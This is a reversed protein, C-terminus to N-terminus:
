CSAELGTDEGSAQKQCRKWLPPGGIFTACSIMSFASIIALSWGVTAFGAGERVFGGLLPGVMVGASFAINYFAYGLAIPKIGRDQYREEIAYTIEATVPGFTFAVGFGVGALLGCLMVKHSMTNESVFRLCVLFPTYLGFGLASLWRPGYRDCLWGVVPSICTPFVLPLFILGAGTSEWGFLEKVFIPLTSDFAALVVAEAVTGWLAALLRPSTFLGLTEKFSLPSSDKNELSEDDHSTNNSSKETAGELPSMKPKAVDDTAQTPSMDAQQLWKAAHKKEVVLVRFVIDIAILGFCMAWVEYYGGKAYVLGGLLPSSLTGLALAIGVWGMAWGLKETSVTDVVLALGVSWTLASTMGQLIRGLILMAVTRMFCLIISAAGLLFLGALMPTRRDHTRDALIGWIAIQM